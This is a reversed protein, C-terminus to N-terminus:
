CRRFFYTHTRVFRRKFIHGRKSLMNNTGTTTPESLGFAIWSVEFIYFLAAILLATELLSFLSMFIRLNLRSVSDLQNWGEYIGTENSIILDESPQGVHIWTVARWLDWMMAGFSALVLGSTGFLAVLLTVQTMDFAALLCSCENPFHNFGAIFEGPDM